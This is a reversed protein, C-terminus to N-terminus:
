NRFLLYILCSLGHKVVNEFVELNTLFVRTTNEVRQRHKFIHDFVTKRTQHMVHFSIPHLSPFFCNAVDHVRNKLIFCSSVTCGPVCLVPVVFLSSFYIDSSHMSEVVSFSYGIKCNLGWNNLLHTVSDV